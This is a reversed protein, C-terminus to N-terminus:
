CEVPLGVSGGGMVRRRALGEQTHLLRAGRLQLAEVGAGAGANVLGMCRGACLGWYAGLAHARGGTQRGQMRGGHRGFADDGARGLLGQHFFLCLHASLLGHLCGGVGM